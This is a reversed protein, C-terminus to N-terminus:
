RDHSAVIRLYGTNLEHLCLRESRALRHGQVHMEHKQDDSFHAYISEIVSALRHDLTKRTASSFWWLELTLDVGLVQVWRLLCHNFKAEIEKVREKTGFRLIDLRVETSSLQYEDVERIGEEVTLV